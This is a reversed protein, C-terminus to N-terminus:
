NINGKGDLIGWTMVRELCPLLSLRAEDSPDYHVGGLLLPLILSEAEVPCRFNYSYPQRTKSVLRLSSIGKKVRAQNSNKLGMSIGVNIAM